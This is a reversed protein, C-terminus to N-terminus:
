YFHRIRLLGLQWLYDRLTRWTLKSENEMREHFVYGVEAISAIKARALIEILIKYGRPRLTLGILASRRLLLYGSMPDSLRTLVEPLVILGLVEATRSILKRRLKWDSVGGGPVRRSAVALDVGAEIREWLRPIVEPPHQLDADIVGLVGGDSVQWGRIVASALGRDHVRRMVRLKPLAACLDLALRWTGDPSNDDVVILEYPIKAQELVESARMIIPEINRAENLTPLVLSLKNSYEPITNSCVRLPGTPIPVLKSELNVDDPVVPPKTM